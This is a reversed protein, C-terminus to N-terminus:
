KKIVVKKTSVSTGDAITVYYIGSNLDTTNLTSTLGNIISTKVIKGTVDVVSITANTM